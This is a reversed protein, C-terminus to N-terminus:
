MGGPGSAPIQQGTPIHHHALHADRHHHAPRHADPHGYKRLRRRGSVIDRVVSIGRTLLTQM